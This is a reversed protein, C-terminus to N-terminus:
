IRMMGIVMFAKRRRRVFHHKESKIAQVTLTLV